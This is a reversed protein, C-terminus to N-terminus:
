MTYMTDLFHKTVNNSSQKLIDLNFDGCILITKSLCLDTYLDCLTQSFANTSSGPTRYLCSIIVNKHGRIMIKVTVRELLNDVVISKHHIYKCTHERKTNRVKHCVEHGELEYDDQTHMNLWTESKAIIDFKYKLSNSSLSRANFHIFSLGARTHNGFSTTFDHNSYYKCNPFIYNYHNNVPDVDQM